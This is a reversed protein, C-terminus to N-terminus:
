TPFVSQSRRITCRCSRWGRGQRGLPGSERVQGTCFKCHGDYIVIDAEPRETPTPLRVEDKAPQATSPESQTAIATM